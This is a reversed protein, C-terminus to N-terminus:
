KGNNRTYKNRFQESLKPDNLVTNVKKRDSESLKSTVASVDGNKLATRLEEESVGLKKSALEIFSDMNTNSM